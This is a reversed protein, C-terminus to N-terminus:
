IAIHGLVALALSKDHTKGMFYVRYVSFPNDKVCFQLKKESNSSLRRYPQDLSILHNRDCRKVPFHDSWDPYCSFLGM